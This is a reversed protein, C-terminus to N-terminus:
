RGGDLEMLFARALAELHLLLNIRQGIAGRQNVSQRGRTQLLDLHRGEDTRARHRLHCVGGLQKGSNGLTGAGAVDGQANWLFLGINNTAIQTVGYRQQGHGILDAPQDIGAGVPAHRQWRHIQGVGHAPSMGLLDFAADATGIDM